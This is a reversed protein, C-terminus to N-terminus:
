HMTSDGEPIIACVSDSDTNAGETVSDLLVELDSILDDSSRTDTTEVVDKFLGVSKGLLEAARLKQGDNPEANDLMHRLKTLVRERDSLASAAIGAEKQRIIAEVRQKIMPNGMLKSASVQHSSAKSGERVNYSERYAAAQSMGSAVCRAFHLQKSTLVGSKRDGGSKQKGESM